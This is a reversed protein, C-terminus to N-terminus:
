RYMMAPSSLLLALRTAPDAADSAAGPPLRSALDSFISTELLAEDSLGPGFVRARLHVMERAVEFRQTLQGASHWERGALPYGDPTTRGFMAQGLGDLWRQIPGTQVADRGAGLARLSDTVWGLPSKFGEASGAKRAPATMRRLHSELVNLDGGSQQFLQATADVDTQPPADAFRFTLAKRAIHHATSPHRALMECLQRLEGFGTAQYVRGLITKAGDDHERPDFFFEGDEVGQDAQRLPRRAPRLLRVGFGTMLRATERIDAQTYGGDVGLTHLELLERAHNENLKGARNRENDLYVLMAPHYTAAHLLDAFRGRVHPRIAAEIYHPLAAGVLGKGRFVNFHNFWFWGWEEEFADRAPDLWQRLSADALDVYIQRRVRNQAQVAQRRAAPDRIDRAAQLGARYSRLLELSNTAM